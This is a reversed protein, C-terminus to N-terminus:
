AISRFELLLTDKTVNGSFRKDKELDISGYKGNNGAYWVKNSDILIARISIEEILLSDIEVSTFVRSNEPIVTEDENKCALFLLISLLALVQNKM